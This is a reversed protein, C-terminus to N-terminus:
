KLVEASMLRHLVSLSINPWLHVCSLASFCSLWHLELKMFKSKKGWSKSLQSPLLVTSYKERVLIKAHNFYNLYIFDM